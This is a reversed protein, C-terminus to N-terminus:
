TEISRSNFQYNIISLPYHIISLQFNFSSHPNLCPHCPYCLNKIKERQSVSRGRHHIPNNM